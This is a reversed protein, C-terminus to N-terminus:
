CRDQWDQNQLCSGWSWLAENIKDPIVPKDPLKKASTDKALKIEKARSNSLARSDAGAAEFALGMAGGIGLGELMNLTAHQAPSMDAKTAIPSLSKEFWEPKM